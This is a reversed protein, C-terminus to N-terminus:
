QISIERPKVEETKHLNIRLVGREFGAEVRNRDVGNGITFARAYGTTDLESFLVTSKEGHHPQVDAKVTLIDKDIKISISGRDAGPMDLAVVYAERTEIIDAYPVAVKEVRTNNTAAPNEVQKVVVNEHNTM